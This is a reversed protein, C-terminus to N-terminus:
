IHLGIGITLDPQIKLCARLVKGDANTNIIRINVKGTFIVSIDALLCVYYAPMFVSGSLSFLSFLLTLNLRREKM